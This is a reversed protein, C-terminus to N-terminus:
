RDRCQLSRSRSCDTGSRVMRKVVLAGLARMALCVVRCRYVSYLYTQEHASASAVVQPRCPTSWAGIGRFRPGSVAARAVAVVVRNAVPRVWRVARDGPLRRTASARLRGHIRPRRCRRTGTASILADARPIRWRLAGIDVLVIGRSWRSRLARGWM